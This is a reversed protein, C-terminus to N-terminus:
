QGLMADQTADQICSPPRWHYGGQMAAGSRSFWLAALLSGVGARNVTQPEVLEQIPLRAIHFHYGACVVGAVRILDIQKDEGLRIKLLAFM